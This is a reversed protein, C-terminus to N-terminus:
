DLKRVSIPAITATQEPAKDPSNLAAARETQYDQSMLRLFGLHDPRKGEAVMWENMGEDTEQSNASNFRDLFAITKADLLVPIRQTSQTLDYALAINQQTHVYRTAFILNPEPDPITPASAEMRGSKTDSPSAHPHHQDAFWASKFQANTAALVEFVTLINKRSTERWYKQLEEDDITPHRELAYKGGIISAEIPQGKFSKFIEDLSEPATHADFHVLSTLNNEPNRLIIAICNGVHQTGIPENQSLGYCGQSIMYSPDQIPTASNHFNNSTEATSPIQTPSELPRPLTKLRKIIDGLNDDTLPLDSLNM